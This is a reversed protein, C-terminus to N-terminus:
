TLFLISMGTIFADSWLVLYAFATQDPSRENEREVRDRCRKLMEKAATSKNIGVDKHPNMDNGRDDQIWAIPAGHAMIHDILEDLSIAVHKKDKLMFARECPIQGWFSQRSKSLCINEADQINAPFPPMSGTEPINSSIYYAVQFVLILVLRRLSGGLNMVVYALLLMVRTLAFGALGATTGPRKRNMARYVMGRAGGHKEGPIKNDCFFAMSAANDKFLMELKDTTAPVAEFPETASIPENAPTQQDADDDGGLANDGVGVGDNSSSTDQHNAINSTSTAKDGDPPKNCSHEKNFEGRRRNAKEVSDSPKGNFSCYRCQTLWILCKPCRVPVCSWTGDHYGGKRSTKHPTCQVQDSDSKCRSCSFTQAVFSDNVANVRAKKTGLEEDTAERVQQPPAHQPPADDDGLSDGLMMAAGSILAMAMTLVVVKTVSTEQLVSQLTSKASDYQSTPSGDESSEAASSASITVILAIALMPGTGFTRISGFAFRLITTAAAIIIYVSFSFVHCFFVSVAGSCFPLDTSGKQEEVELPQPVRDHRGNDDDEKKEDPPSPDGSPEPPSTVRSFCCFTCVQTAADVIAQWCFLLMLSFSINGAVLFGLGITVSWVISDVRKITQQKLAISHRAQLHSLDKIRRLRRARRVRRRLSPRKKWERQSPGTRQCKRKWRRRTKPDSQDQAPDRVPDTDPGSGFCWEVALYILLPVIVAATLATDSINEISEKLCCIRDLFSSRSRRMLVGPFFLSFFVVLVSAIGLLYIMIADQTGVVLKEPPDQIYHTCFYGYLKMVALFFMSKVLDILLWPDGGKYKDHIGIWAFCGAYKLLRIVVLQVWTIVTWIVIWIGLAPIWYIWHDPSSIWWNDLLDFTMVLKIIEIMALLCGGLWGFYISYLSVLCPVLLSGLFTCLYVIWASMSHASLELMLSSDMNSDTVWTRPILTTNLILETTVLPSDLPISITPQRLYHELSCLWAAVSNRRGSTLALGGVLLLTLLLLIGVFTALITFRSSAAAAANGSQRRGRGSQRRGRGITNM